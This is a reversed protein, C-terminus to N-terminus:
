VSAIEYYVCPRAKGRYTIEEYADTKTMGCKQMVRISAPNDAFCAATIKKFGALFLRALVAKLMETAYGKGQVCPDIAYGIEITDKTWEVDNVFGILRGDLYIGREFHTQAQSYIRLRQAMNEYEEQTDYAPLMYSRSIQQNSLLKALAPIDEKRYPQIQLRQTQIVEEIKIGKMKEMIIEEM